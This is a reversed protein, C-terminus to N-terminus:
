YDEDDMKAFGNINSLSSKNEGDTETSGIRNTPVFIKPDM